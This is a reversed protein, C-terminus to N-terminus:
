DGGLYIIQSISEPVKTVTHEIQKALPDDSKGVFKIVKLAELRYFAVALAPSIHRKYDYTTRGKKEMVKSTQKQYNGGDLVPLADSLLSLFITIDLSKESKFIHSLSNRVARTPDVFIKGGHVEAFGLFLLWPIVFPKENTNLGYKERELYSGILDDIEVYTAKKLSGDSGFPLHRGSALLCSLILLLIKEENKTSRIPVTIDSISKSFLSKRVMEAIEFPNPDDRVTKTEECLELMSDRNLRWLCHSEDMWFNLHQKFKKGQNDGTPLNKPRCMEEIKEMRMPVSSRRLVRYILCMIGIHFGGDSNNLINAM